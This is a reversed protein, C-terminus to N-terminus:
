LVVRLVVRLAVKSVVLSAVLQGVMVDVLAVALQGAWYFVLLGAMKVVLDGVKMVVQQCVWRDVKM